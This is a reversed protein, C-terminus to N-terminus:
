LILCQIERSLMRQQLCECRQGGCSLRLGPHTQRGGRDHGLGRPALHRDGSAHRGVPLRRAHDFPLRPNFTIGGVLLSAVLVPGHRHPAVVLHCRAALGVLLLQRADHRVSALPYRLAHHEVNLTLVM